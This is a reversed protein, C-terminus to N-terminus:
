EADTLGIPSRYWSPQPKCLHQVVLTGSDRQQAIRSPRLNPKARPRCGRIFYTAAARSALPPHMATPWSMMRTPPTEAVSCSSTSATRCAFEPLGRLLACNAQWAHLFTDSSSGSSYTSTGTLLLHLHPWHRLVSSFASFIAQQSPKM